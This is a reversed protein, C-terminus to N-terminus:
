ATAQDSEQADNSIDALAGELQKILWSLEYPDHEINSYTAYVAPLDVRLRGETAVIWSTSFVGLFVM